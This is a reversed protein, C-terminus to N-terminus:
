GALNWRRLINAQEVFQKRPRSARDAPLLIVGRLQDRFATLKGDVGADRLEQIRAESLHVTYDTDFTILGKDYARHHLACLAVGNATEDTSGSEAVPLIHAGDLLQLQVGCMACRNRYAGLVRNSFDLARLARRTQTVAWRRAQAIGARIEPESVGAPDAALRGLM